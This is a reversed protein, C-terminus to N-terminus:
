SIMDTQLSKTTFYTADRANCKNKQFTYYRYLLHWAHIFADM